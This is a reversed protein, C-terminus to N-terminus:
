GEERIVVKYWLTNNNPSLHVICHEGYSEPELEVNDSGDPNLSYYRVYGVPIPFIIQAGIGEVEVHDGGENVVFWIGSGEYTEELIQGFNQMKGTAIILYTSSEPTTEVLIMAILASDELPPDVSISGGALVGREFLHIEVHETDIAGALVHVNETDAKFYSDDRNDEDFHWELEHENEGIMAKYIHDEPEGPEVPIIQEPGKDIEIRRMLTSYPSRHGLWHTVLSFAMDNNRYAHELVDQETTVLRLLESGVNIDNRRFLLSAVTIAVMKTMHRDFDYKMAVYSRDWIEDGRYAFVMLGDWDQYAGYLAALLIPEAAHYNPWPSSLETAVYPRGTVKGGTIYPMPRHWRKFPYKTISDLFFQDDANWCAYCAHQDHFTSSPYTADLAGSQTGSIPVRVGVGPGAINRLHDVM